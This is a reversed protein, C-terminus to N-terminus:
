PPPEDGVAIHRKPVQHAHQPGANGTIKPGVPLHAFQDPDPVLEELHHADQFPNMPFRFFAAGHDSPIEVPDDKMSQFVDFRHSCKKCEYEYTPM